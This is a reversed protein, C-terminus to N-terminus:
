KIRKKPPFQLQVKKVPLSVGAKKCQKIFARQEFNPNGITILVDIGYAHPQIKKNYLKRTAKVTLKEHVYATAKWADYKLLAEIVKLIVKSSFEIKM